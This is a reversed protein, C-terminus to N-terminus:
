EQVWTVNDLVGSTISVTTDTGSIVPSATFSGSLRRNVPDFATITLTGSNPSSQTSYSQNWTGYACIASGATQDDGFTFTGVQPTNIDLTLSLTGSDVTEQGQIVLLQTGASIYAQVDIGHTDISQFPTGSVNATMAGQGFMRGTIGVNSFSGTITDIKSPDITPIRQSALMRFTGSVLNNVTDFNTVTITGGYDSGFVQSGVYLGGNFGGDKYFDVFPYTGAIPAPVSGNLSLTTSGSSSQSKSFTLNIGLYNVGPTAPLYRAFASCTNQYQSRDLTDRNVAFKFGGYGSSADNVTIITRASDRKTGTSDTYIASVAHKGLTTFMCSLTDVNTRVFSANDIQWTITYPKPLPTPSATLTFIVKTRVTVASSDPTIKLTRHTTDGSAPASPNSSCATISALLFFLGVQLFRFRLLM